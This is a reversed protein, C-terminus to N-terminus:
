TSRYCRKTLGHETSGIQSLPKISWDLFRIKVNLRDKDNHDLFRRRRSTLELNQIISSIISKSMPGSCGNSIEEAESITVSKKKSKANDSRLKDLHELYRDDVGGTVYEGNFVSCDFNEVEPNWSRCSQVLDELTQYIVLDAGIAEAIEPETRGHAVLEKPSPMDIGYVNPHRYTLEPNQPIPLHSVQRSTCM